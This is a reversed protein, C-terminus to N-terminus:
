KDSVELNSVIKTGKIIPANNPTKSTQEHQVMDYKIMQIIEKDEILKVLSSQKYDSQYKVRFDFEKGLMNDLPAPYIQLHEENTKKM